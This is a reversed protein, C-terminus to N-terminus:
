SPINEQKGDRGGIIEVHNFIYRAFMSFEPIKKWTTGM